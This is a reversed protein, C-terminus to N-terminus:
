NKEGIIVREIDSYDKIIVINKYDSDILIKKVADSQGAGIEFFLKGNNKLLSRSLVSINRYFSLGDSEDTLAIQPEYLRLEPDLNVFDAVSVYPPNSVVVDFSNENIEIGNLINKKVFMLQSEVGNLKANRTSTEIAEESIDIGVVTCSPINKALAISINGSGSGIDLININEDKAVSEIVAEVLLETEPRPILVSQNVEFELGYFEVKGIIYQLPEFTSRRKLLERYSDIESKQLPRDFSLYLELRKCNLIHSLLLEANLRSSKIGKNQLYDSAGNLAELVTLM